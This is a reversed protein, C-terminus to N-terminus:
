LGRGPSRAGTPTAVTTSPRSADEPADPRSMVVLWEESLLPSVSIIQRLQLGTERIEDRLEARSLRPNNGKHLGLAHRLWRGAYKLTYKHYYSAIVVDGVRALERIAELRRSRDVLNFFRICVTAAFTRDPFPLHFIDGQFCHLSPEVRAAIDLMEQSIDGAYVKFGVEVLQRSFRGTGCPIDLLRGGPQAHRLARRLARWAARNNIRGQLDSYRSRDYRAAVAPDRYRTQIEHFRDSLECSSGDADVPIVPENESVPKV